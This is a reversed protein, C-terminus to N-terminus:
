VIEKRLIHKWLCFDRDTSVAEDVRTQDPVIQSRSEPALRYALTAASRAWTALILPGSLDPDVGRLRLHRRVVPLAWGDPGMGEDNAELQQPRLFAKRASESVYQLYFILDHGPVGDPTAREWDVVQLQGGPKIFLNPHSLDAHEFVAPLATTQLSVLALHTREVLEASEGGLPALQVLARLPAAITREYWDANEDAYRTVPLSLVFDEGTRVAASRDASVRDPDLPAGSLATEVLITHDGVDLMAVVAPWRGTTHPALGALRSLIEAERRVGENDNPQRPVKVVLVPVREGPNFILAVLHRSTVFRPTLLVTGWDRRLGHSALEFEDFHTHLLHDVFNM